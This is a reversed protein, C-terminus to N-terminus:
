QPCTNEIVMFDYVSSKSLYSVDPLLPFATDFYTNFVIRFSNVPSISPYLANEGDSLYYANLIKVRGPSDKRLQSHDGQLIIVPPTESEEILIKLNPLIFKNIFMAQNVYGESPNSQDPAVPNGERDFAFPTHPVILHIFVFQPGPRNAMSEFSGLVLRTRERFREAYVDDINIIGLDDVIRAYSSLLVVTEFETIPGYPPEIFYDVDKWEAWTFGSAFAMTEYGLNAFSEKVMNDDLLKFLNMLETEDPHFEDSLNQIYDFNLASALSLGTSRYNSQSCEAVYFGLDRLSQIFESNDFEYNDLLVDARSYSDLIIYYVDPPSSPASTDVIHNVKPYFPLNKVVSYRLAQMAPFLLLIIAILNAGALINKDQIAKRRWGIWVILALASLTWILAFSLSDIFFIRPILLRRVLDYSYFMFLLASTIFAATDRSRVILYFLLNFAGTVLVSVLVPRVFNLFPVGHINVAYLRFIFYVSFLFPHLPSLILRETFVHIKNSSM